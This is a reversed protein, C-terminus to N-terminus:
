KGDPQPVVKYFVGISPRPYLNTCFLLATVLLLLSAIVVYVRFSNMRTSVRLNM